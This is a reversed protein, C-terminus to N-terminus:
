AFALRVCACTSWTSRSRLLNKHIPRRERDRGAKRTSISSLPVSICISLRDSANHTSVIHTRRWRRRESSGAIWNIRCGVTFSYYMEPSCTKSNLVKKPESKRKRHWRHLRDGFHIFKVNPRFFFLCFAPHIFSVNALYLPPPPPRTDTDAHM